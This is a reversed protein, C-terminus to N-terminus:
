MVADRLIETHRELLYPFPFPFFMIADDWRFRHVLKMVYTDTTM